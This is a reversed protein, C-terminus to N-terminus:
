TMIMGLGSGEGLPKLIYPVEPPRARKLDRETLLLSHVVPVGCGRCTHKSRRKDTAPAPAGSHSCSLEQHESIAQVTGNEEQGDHLIDLATYAREQDLTDPGCKVTDMRVVRHGHSEVAEAYKAGSMPFVDRENSIGAMLVAMEM